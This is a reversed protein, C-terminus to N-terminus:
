VRDGSEPGYRTEVEECIRSNVLGNLSEGRMARDRILTASVDPLTGDLRIVHGPALSQANKRSSQWQELGVAKWGPLEVIPPEGTRSFVAVNCCRQHEPYDIWQSMTAFSDAGCLWLPIIEPCSKRFRKLTHIAPVPEDHRVEWDMIRVEPLESFMTEAWALRMEGSAHSSADRHVPIGTPIVWIEDLQLQTLASRVLAEHGLHPPDFSGGFLGIMKASKSVPM